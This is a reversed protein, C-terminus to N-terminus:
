DIQINSYTGSFYFQKWSKNSPKPIVDLENSYKYFCKDRWLAGNDETIYKFLKSVGPLFLALAEHECQKLILELIELPLEEM